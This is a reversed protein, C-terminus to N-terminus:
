HFDYTSDVSHETLTRQSPDKAAICVTRFPCARGIPSVALPVYREPLTCSSPCGDCHTETRKCCSRFVNWFLYHLRSPDRIGSRESIEMIAQYVAQRIALDEAATVPENSSLKERLRDDAIFVTGLRLHGRIEHYDVPAGLQEPDVFHWLGHNRMLALLFFTKKHIPDRYAEFNSLLDVLNPTGSAIRGSAKEYLTDLHPWGRNLMVSGLNRILEARRESGVMTSNEESTSFMTLLRAASMSQWVGPSLLSRDNRALEEFRGLLFDWGHRMRGNVEGRLATQRIPSTQHCIAVLFLYFDGIEDNTFGELSVEERDTPIQHQAIWISVLKCADLNVAVSNTELLSM